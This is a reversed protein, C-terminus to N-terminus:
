GRFETARFVAALAFQSQLLGIRGTELVLRAHSRPGARDFSGSGALAVLLTLALADVLSPQGLQAPRRRIHVTESHERCNPSRYRNSRSPAGAAAPASDTKRSLSAGEGGLSLLQTAHRMIVHEEAVPQLQEIESATGRDAMGAAGEANM